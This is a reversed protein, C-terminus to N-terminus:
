GVETIPFQIVAVRGIRRMGTAAGSCSRLESMLDSRFAVESGAPLKCLSGLLSQAMHAPSRELSRLWTSGCRSGVFFKICPPSFPWSRSEQWLGEKSFKLGPLYLNAGSLHQNFYMLIVWSRTGVWLWLRSILFSRICGKEKGGDSADQYIAVWCADIVLHGVPGTAKISSGLGIYVHPLLRSISGSPDCLTPWM